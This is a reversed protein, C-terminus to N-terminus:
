RKATLLHGGGYRRALAAILTREAETLAATDVHRWNAEYLALAEAGGIARSADRNWVLRALEGYRAPIVTDTDEM